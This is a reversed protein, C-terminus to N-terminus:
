LVWLSQLPKSISTFWDREREREVFICIYRSYKEGLKIWKSQNREGLIKEESTKFNYM